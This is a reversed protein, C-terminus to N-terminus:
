PGVTATGGGMLTASNCILSNTIATGFPEPATSFFVSISAGPSTVQVTWNGSNCSAVIDFAGVTDFDFNAPICDGFYNSVTVSGVATARFSLSLADWSLTQSGNLGSFATVKQNDAGANVCGCPASIGSFVVTITGSTPCSPPQPPPPPDNWGPLRDPADDEKARTVKINEPNSFNPTSGTNQTIVARPQDAYRIPTYRPFLSDEKMFSPVAEMFRKQEEPTLDDSM